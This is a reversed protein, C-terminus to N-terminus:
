AIALKLHISFEKNAKNDDVILTHRGPYLLNLRRRTNTLGIGNSEELEGGGSGFSSNRIEIAIQNHTHTVSMYIFSPYISSIGHKYANEIFPLIIMPAIPVDEIFAPKEFIIQVDPPVRLRMLKNYSEVFELEKELTTNESNYLVYRMMHSLTYISDKAKATDQGTLGYITHLVNFFFHPNIQTKLFALESGIKQLQDQQIKQTIVIIVGIGCVLITMLVAGMDGTPSTNGANSAPLNKEVVETFRIANDIRNNLISVGFLVALLVLAFLTGKNRYLLKPLLVKIVLFYAGTWYLFLSFQKLWVEIPFTHSLTYFPLFTFVVLGLLVMFHASLFIKQITM